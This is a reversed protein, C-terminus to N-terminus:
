ISLTKLRRRNCFFDFVMRTVVIATFMSCLIGVILTVAFGRVPGTGYQMLVIGAILTTVNADFITSFAKGYGAEIAARPSKGARLEERIREFIIVNADVAMGVTLLIGAMGPLTLTAEFLALVAIVLLLNLVLALNAVVGSFKYYILMFLLVLGLGVVIAMSGKRIAEQGLTQGVQRKERIEVPAPLAGARLVLALDRAEEYQEQANAGRGLRIRASGGGIKESIVPASNVEDDLVIAMRRNVNTETLDAFIKAGELDFKMSVQFRSPVQPDQEASAQVLYEGTIGAKSEVVFTRLVDEKPTGNANIAPGFLLDRNGPLKEALLERLAEKNAKPVEFYTEVGDDTNGSKSVAGEPLELPDVDSFVASGATDVMKFELQATRGIISIAREPDKIGPLQILISDAGRRAITPETVGLQDARNRITKIAQDVAMDAQAKAEDNTLALEFRTGDRKAVRLVTYQTQIIREFEGTNADEALKIDIVPESRPRSISSFAINETKLEERLADALRDARHEVAKEVKVGMVLHVGGQLDLGLNFKTCSSWLPLAKCFEDHSEKQEETAEAYYYYSPFILYAALGLVGLVMVLKLYWGRDM